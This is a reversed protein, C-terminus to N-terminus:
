NKDDTKSYSEFSFHKSGPSTKVFELNHKITIFFDKVWYIFLSKKFVCYM